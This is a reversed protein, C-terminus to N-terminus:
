IRWNFHKREGVITGRHKQRETFSIVTPTSYARIYEQRRETAKFEVLRTDAIATKFNCNVAM